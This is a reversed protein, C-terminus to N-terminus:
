EKIYDLFEQQTTIGLNDFQTILKDFNSIHCTKPYCWCAVRKGRLALIEEVTIKSKELSDIVYLLHMDTVKGRASEDAMPYPNKYVNDPLGRGPRGAYQDYDKSYRINVPTFNLYTHM